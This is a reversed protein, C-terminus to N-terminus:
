ERWGLGGGLYEITVSLPNPPSIPPPRHRCRPLTLLPLMRARQEEREGLILSSSLLSGATAADTSPTTAAAGVGRGGEELDPLLLLSSPKPPSEDRQPKLSRWPWWRAQRDSSPNKNIQPLPPANHKAQSSPQEIQNNETDTRETRKCISSTICVIQNTNRPQDTSIPLHLCTSIKKLM